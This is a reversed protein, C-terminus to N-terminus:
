LPKIMIEVFCVETVDLLSPSFFGKFARLHKSLRSKLAKQVTNVLKETESYPNLLKQTRSLIIQEM